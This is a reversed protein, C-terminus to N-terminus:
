PSAPTTTSAALCALLSESLTWGCQGDAQRECTAAKYCAYAATYECTSAVEQDSCVQGSCGTVVCGTSHSTNTNTSSNTITKQKAASPPPYISFDILLLFSVIAFAMLAIPLVVLTPRFPPM